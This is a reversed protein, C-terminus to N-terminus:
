KAEGTELAYDQEAEDAGTITNTVSGGGKFTNNYINTFEVVAMEVEETDIEDRLITTEKTPGDASKYNGGAYVETM